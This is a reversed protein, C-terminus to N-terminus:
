RSSPFITHALYSSRAYPSSKVQKFGREYAAQEFYKFKEETVYERVPYHRLSPALYQGLTLLDCGAQRLDDMVSLVEDGSEGLGLMLGSKTFVSPNDAKVTKLVELSKRYDARPRVKIYLSPVTEINHAVVDAQSDSATALAKPDNAFDPILIEVKPSPAIAKLAKVTLFFHGAGGDKLDDRTPSTIVVYTLGLREAAQKIRAPEGTDVPLPKGKEVACFGCNRTCVNGLILFTATGCAFCESINPCRASECVTHLRLDKLLSKMKRCAGFDIKKNIWQPKTRSLIM